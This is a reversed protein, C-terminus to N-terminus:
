IWRRSLGHLIIGVAVGVNLSECKKNMKISVRIDCMNLLENNVGDSENGVLVAWRDNAKFDHLDIGEKVDTGIIQYGQEKLELIFDKIPKKIINLHFIMGQTAQILKQNYTDVCNNLVVTDVDFAAASRIITGLNGPHHIQDILLINNKCGREEQQFCIGIIKTPTALSSLKEMVEYTVQHTKVDFRTSKETTIIEKLCNAKFAEEVLHFGEALFLKQKDRDAKNKLKCWQTVKFNKLSNIVAM